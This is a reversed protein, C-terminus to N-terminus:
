AKEISCSKAVLKISPVGGWAQQLSRAASVLGQSNNSQVAQGLKGLALQIKGLGDAIKQLDDSCKGRVSSAAHSYAKQPQAFNAGLQNIYTQVCNERASPNKVGTCQLARQLGAGKVAQALQNNALTLKDAETQALVDTRQTEVKCGAFLLVLIVLPLLRLYKM